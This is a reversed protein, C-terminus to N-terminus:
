DKPIRTGEMVKRRQGSGRKECLSKKISNDKYIDWVLDVRKTNELYKFVYRAFINHFYEDFTSATRTELIQVIVAGDLFVADAPQAVLGESTTRPLCKLLEAKQGGRLRGLESLLPPWPQNEYSFFDDLNGDRIQCAIYLRSFLWCDKKLVQIKAKDKSVIKKSPTNLIPFNNKKLSHTVPITGDVFREKIFSNFQKEGIARANVVTQVVADDMIDKAHIAMLNEDDSISPNGLEEFSSMTNVVDKLFASQVGPTQEHHRREEQLLVSGEFEQVLRSLEPGSVLWRRLAASNETLGVAGGEGKVIANVQEHAHDLAICSFARCTKHVVFAGDSFYTSTFMQTSQLLLVCTGIISLSGDPM